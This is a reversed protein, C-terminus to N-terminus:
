VPATMLHGFRHLWETNMNKMVSDEREDIDYSSSGHAAIKLARVLEAKSIKDHEVAVATVLLFNELNHM